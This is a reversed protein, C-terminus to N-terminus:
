LNDFTLASACDVESGLLCPEAFVWWDIHVQQLLLCDQTVLFRVQSNWLGGFRLEAFCMAEVSHLILQIRVFLEKNVRTFKFKINEIEHVFNSAAITQGVESHM